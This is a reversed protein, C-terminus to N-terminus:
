FVQFMSLFFSSQDIKIKKLFKKQFQIKKKIKSFKIKGTGEVVVVYKEVLRRDFVGDDKDDRILSILRFKLLLQATSLEVKWVSDVNILLVVHVGSVDSWMGYGLPLYLSILQLVHPGTSLLQHRSRISLMKTFRCTLLSISSLQLKEFKQSTEFFKKDSLYIKQFNSISGTEFFIRFFGIRM